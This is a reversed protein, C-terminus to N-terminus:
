GFFDQGYGEYPNGYAWYRGHILKEGKPPLRIEQIVLSASSEFSQDLAHKRALQELWSTQHLTVFESVSGYKLVLAENYSGEASGLSEVIKGAAEIRVDNGSSAIASVLQTYSERTADDPINFLDVSIVPNEYLRMRKLEDPGDLPVPFVLRGQGLEGADSVPNEHLEPKFVEPPILSDDLKITWTHVTREYIEDPHPPSEESVLLCHRWFVSSQEPRKLWGNVASVSLPTITSDHLTEVYKAPPARPIALIIRNPRM